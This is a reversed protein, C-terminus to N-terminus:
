KSQRLLVLCRGKVPYEEGGRVPGNRAPIKSFCTDILCEWNGKFLWDPLMFTIDEHHANLIVLLSDDIITKGEIDIEDTLNGSFFLGLCQM